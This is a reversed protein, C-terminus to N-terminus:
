NGDQPTMNAESKQYLFSREENEALWRLYGDLEPGGLNIAFEVGLIAIVAYYEGVDLAEASPIFLIDWEHLVQFGSDISDSFQQDSPYLRRIHVPWIFGPKGKRVYDRLEDLEVKNVLEENSGDIGSFRQALVELGIKGIFRATEYSNAPAGSVPVLLSGRRRTRISKMLRAADEDRTAFVGLGDDNLLLSVEVGSQEHLGGVVPIRGRRSQIGMEFRARKCYDSCLFPAEVERSLYNNCADCVWGPPLVHDENGLSAPVIHEVSKSSDSFSKCFICRV